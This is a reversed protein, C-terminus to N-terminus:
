LQAKLRSLTFPTIGLYSSVVKNTLRSLIMPQYEMLWKLQELATEGQLGYIRKQSTIYAMELIDRYVLNVQPVSNVLKFFDERSILLLESNEVARIYEFSPKREIFSSLATGFKGEFAFYRILEKGGNNFSYLKLCGKNVFINHRCIDGEQMIIENKRVKRPKFYHCFESFTDKDIDTKDQFYKYLLDYM